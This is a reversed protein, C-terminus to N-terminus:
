DQEQALQTRGGLGPGCQGGRGLSLAPSVPGPSERIPHEQPSKPDLECYLLRMVLVSFPHM